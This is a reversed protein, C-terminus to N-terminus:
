GPPIRNRWPEGNEDVRKIVWYELSDHVEKVFGRRELDGEHLSAPKGDVEICCFAMLSAEGTRRFDVWYRTFCNNSIIMLMRRLGALTITGPRPNEEPPAADKM